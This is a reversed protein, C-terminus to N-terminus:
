RGPSTPLYAPNATPWGGGCRRGGRDAALAEGRRGLESLRIGLNNLSMALDPLYAPNADALARYTNVAEQAPALAEDRRGWDALLGAVHLAAAAQDPRLERVTAALARLHALGALGAQAAHRWAYLWLYSPAPRVCGRRCCCRTGAWCRKPSGGRRRGPRVRTNASPVFPAQLHDALSQQRVRYVASGAEGDQVIFRGLQELLWSVDEATVSGFPLQPGATAAAVM